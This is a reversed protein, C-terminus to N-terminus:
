TRPRTGPLFPAVALALAEDYARQADEAPLPLRGSLELSVMGHAVVWLHLAIRDPDGTLVGTAVAHRVGEVLPAYTAAAAKEDEEDLSVEPPLTGFMLGYLHRSDLAALRYARGLEALTTLPDDASVRLRTGLRTFGERHMAALLRPKDGFRTYVAMTSTGCVAALRRLSLGAPGQEALIRAGEDIMRHTLDDNVDAV